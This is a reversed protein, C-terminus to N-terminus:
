DTYFEERDFLWLCNLRRTVPDSNSGIFLQYTKTVVYYRAELQPFAQSVGEELLTQEQGRKTKGAM